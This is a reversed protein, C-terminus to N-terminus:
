QQIIKYKKGITNFLEIENGISEADVRFPIIVIFDFGDFSETQEGLL